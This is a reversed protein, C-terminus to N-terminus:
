GLSSIVRPVARMDPTTSVMHATSPTWPAVNRRALFRGFVASILARFSEEHVNCVGKVRSRETSVPIYHQAHVVEGAKFENEKELMFVVGRFLKTFKDRFM